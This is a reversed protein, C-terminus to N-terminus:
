DDKIPNAYEDPIAADIVPLEFVEYYNQGGDRWNHTDNLSTALQEAKIKDSFLGVIASSVGCEICGINFLVYSM